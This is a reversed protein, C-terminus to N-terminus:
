DKIQEAYKKRIAHLIEPNKGVLGKPLVIRAKPHDNSRAQALAEEFDEQVRRQLDKLKAAAEDSLGLDSVVAAYPILHLPVSKRWGFDGPPGYVEAQVHISGMGLFILLWLHCISNKIMTEYM